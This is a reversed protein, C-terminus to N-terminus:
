QSTRPQYLAITVGLACLFAVGGTSFHAAALAGFSGGAMVGGITGRERDSLSVCSALLLCAIILRRKM